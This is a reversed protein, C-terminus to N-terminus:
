QETYVAPSSQFLILFTCRNTCSLVQIESLLNQMEDSTPHIRLARVAEEMAESLEGCSM